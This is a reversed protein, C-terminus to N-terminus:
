WGMRRVREELTADDPGSAVFSLMALLPADSLYCSADRSAAGTAEPTLDIGLATAARVEVHLARVEGLAHLAARRDPLLEDEALALAARDAHLRRAVERHDAVHSLEHAIAAAFLDRRMGLLCPPVKLIEAHVDARLMAGAGDDRLVAVTDGLVVSGLHRELVADRGLAARLDGIATGIAAEITADTVQTVPPEPAWLPRLREYADPERALAEAAPRAIEVLREIPPTVTWEAERASDTGRREPRDSPEPSTGRRSLALGVALAAIVVSGAVALAGRSM